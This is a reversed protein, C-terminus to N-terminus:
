LDELAEVIFGISAKGDPFFAIGDREVHWNAPNAFDWDQTCIEEGLTAGFRLQRDDSVELLRSM